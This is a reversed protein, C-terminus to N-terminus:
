KLGAIFFITDSKEARELAIKYEGISAFLGALISDGGPKGKTLWALHNDLGYRQYYRFDLVKMDARDFVYELSKKSYIFPHMPQFYFDRYAKCNYLSILPDDICPVEVIIKGGTNLHSCCEKLFPFPSKIHEFVHFMCIVDFKFQSPIKSIDEFTGACFRGCFARNEQTLEVGYREKDGLLELFAGTSTGIELVKTASSFQSQIIDYRERAIPKSREHLEHVGASKIFGRKAAHVNYNKYFEAEEEDSMVPNIFFLNCRSCSHVTGNEMGWVSDHFLNLEASGCIPCNM